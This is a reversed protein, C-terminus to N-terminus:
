TMIYGETVGFDMIEVELEVEKFSAYKRARSYVYDEPQDVVKSRVPNYHIYSIIRQTFRPHILM